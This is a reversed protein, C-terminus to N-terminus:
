RVLQRGAEVALHGDGTDTQGRVLQERAQERDRDAEEGPQQEGLGPDAHDDARGGLRRLPGTREPDVDSSPDGGDEAEANCKGAEGADERCGEPRDRRLHAAVEDDDQKGDDDDTAEARDEARDHGAEEHAEHLGVADGVCRGVRLYGDEDQHGQDDEDPRGAKRGRRAPPSRM